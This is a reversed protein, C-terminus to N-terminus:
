SAPEPRWAPFADYAGSTLYIPEGTPLVIAIRSGATGGDNTYAVWDSSPSWSPPWHDNEPTNTIRLPGSAGDPGVTFVDENWTLPDSQAYDNESAVFAIGGLSNVASESANPLDIPPIEPEGGDVDVYALKTDTFDKGVTVLLRAGDPTWSPWNGEVVRRAEGTAETSRIWVSPSGQWDDVFAISRGDPSWAPAFELGAGDTLQTLHRDSATPDADILWIDGSSLGDLRSFALRQGDPSWAPALEIEPLDTLQVLDSGDTGVIWIDGATPAQTSTDFVTRSFAIQGDPPTTSGAEPSSPAATASPGAPAATASATSPVATGSPSAGPSSCGWLLGAGLM